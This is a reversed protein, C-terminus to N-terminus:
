NQKSSILISSKWRESVNSIIVSEFFRIIEWLKANRLINQFIVVDIISSIDLVFNIFGYNLCWSNQFSVTRVFENKFM